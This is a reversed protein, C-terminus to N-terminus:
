LLCCVIYSITLKNSNRISLTLIKTMYLALRLTRFLPPVIFRPPCPLNTGSVSGKIFLGCDRAVHLGYDRAVHLVHVYLRISSYLQRHSCQVIYVQLILSDGVGLVGLRLRATRCTVSGTWGAGDYTWVCVCTGVSVSVETTDLSPYCDHVWLWLM